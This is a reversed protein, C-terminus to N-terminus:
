VRLCRATDLLFVLGFDCRRWRCLAAFGLGAMVRALCRKHLRHLPLPIDILALIMNIKLAVCHRTYEAITTNAQQAPPSGATEGAPRTLPQDQGVGLLGQAGSRRSVGDTRCNALRRLVRQASADRLESLNRSLVKGIVERVARRWPCNMSIPLLPINVLALGSIIKLAVGRCTYAAITPSRRHGQMLVSRPM